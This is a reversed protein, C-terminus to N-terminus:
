VSKFLEAVRETGIELIFSALKPGKEKNILVRYAAKFFDAPPFEANTCLIYMEEHLGKDTWDKEQLKEAVKHLIDKEEKSLTVQSKTQVTFKFEEPAHKKIWNEACEARAKLRDKDFQNKLEKSFFDVVKNMDFNYIQLQMSLHRISPQYPLSKPIEDMSLEYAAKLKAAHKHEEGFYIREVKDFEEYIALVDTDFSISFERNPRTGAFIYRVLSPEYVELMETLTIVNGASSAFQGKGKIGIWEYMFGVPHETKYVQKQIERGTTVSGGSAFHDKGASEFDVKNHHWRMPWDVRWRLTVIGRKRFDITDKHGCECTYNVEYGKEWTITTKDKDCKECFVFIPLWEKALPERRYENLITKIKETNELATKIEEAYECNLYHEHSYMFTCEIGVRKMEEEFVKEFHEAYSKHCEFPDPVKFVPKGLNEKIMDQKPLNKPVKRLVDYDDWVYLFDVKKGARELGKRVLDQTVAERFNGLHIFGSPTIGSEVVYTEKDGRKSIINRAAGDTWHFAKSEKAM